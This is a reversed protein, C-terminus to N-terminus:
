RGAPAASMLTDLEKQLGEISMRVTLYRHLGHPDDVWSNRSHVKQKDASDAEITLSKCWGNVVNFYGALGRVTYLAQLEDWSQNNKLKDRCYFCMAVPNDEKRYLQNLVAGSWVQIGLEFGGFTAHIPWHGLVYRTSSAYTNFNFEEKGEPFNGGM